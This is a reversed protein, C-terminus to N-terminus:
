PRYLRDRSTMTWCEWIPLRLLIIVKMNQRLYGVVRDMDSAFKKANQPCVELCHGCNICHDKMIHAQANQVSIAKVECHRVCKYCHRCSADKFDIVRM